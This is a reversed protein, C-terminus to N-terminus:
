KLLLKLIKEKLEETVKLLVMGEGPQGYYVLSDLPMTLILSVTILDEEGNVLINKHKTFDLKNLIDLSEKSITGAPNNIEIDPNINKLNESEFPKRQSLNDYVGITYTWNKEIFTNLAFDGVVAVTTDKKHKASSVITGLPKSLFSRQYNDIKIDESIQNAYTIGKRNVKGSRIDVAHLPKGQDTNEMPAVFVALERMGYAERIENIKEAGILTEPTVCVSDIRKNDRDITPGYPDELTVIEHTINNKKCFNLVAKIRVKYPQISKPYDKSQALRNDTVGIILRYGYKFAYNIFSEHGKHFHDFTGGLAMLRQRKTVKYM